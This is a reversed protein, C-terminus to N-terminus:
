TSSMAKAPGPTSSFCLPYIRRKYTCSTGDQLCSRPDRQSTHHVLNVFYSSRLKLSLCLAAQLRLGFKAAAASRESRKKDFRAVLPPDGGCGSCWKSSEYM